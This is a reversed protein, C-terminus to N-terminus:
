EFLLLAKYLTNYLDNCLYCSVDEDDDSDKELEALARAEEEASVARPAEKVVLKGRKGEIAEKSAQIARELIEIGARKDLTMTTIAYLPAAILKMRVELADKSVSQAARMSEQIALVGEYQFCTM